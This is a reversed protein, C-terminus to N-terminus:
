QALRFISPYCDTCLRFIQLKRDHDYFKFGVFKKCLYHANLHCHECHYIHTCNCLLHCIDCFNKNNNNNTSLTLCEKCKFYKEFKGDMEVRKLKELLHM